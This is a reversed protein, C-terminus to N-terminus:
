EHRPAKKIGANNELEMYWIELLSFALIEMAM